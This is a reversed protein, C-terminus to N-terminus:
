PAGASQKANSKMSSVGSIPLSILRTQWQRTRPKYRIPRKWCPARFSSSGAGPQDRTLITDTAHDSMYPVIPSGDDDLALLGRRELENLSLDFVHSAVTILRALKEDPLDALNGGTMEYAAEVLEEKTVEPWRAYLGEFEEDTV